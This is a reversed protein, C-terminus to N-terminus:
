EGGYKAIFEPSYLDDYLSEATPEPAAKAHEIADQVEKAMSAYIDDLRTEDAIGSQLLYERMRKVPDMSEAWPKSTTTDRYREDDAVFHGIYRYYRAEILTPGEGKRALTAADRVAAYVAFPNFGDVTVGPIGYGIARDAVNPNKAAKEYPMSIAWQNNECLFIVPLNWVASMNLSEHWVGQNTGGDGHFCITVYDKKLVQATLASGVAIPMGSGVIGTAGLMGHDMAAIHMSGGKGKCYGDAKGMLESMMKKVDGGMAIVHGHGRHTSTIFDGKKLAACAGVAVAEAGLYAHALGYIFNQKWLDKVNTDFERILAMKRYIELQDEVTLEPPAKMEQMVEKKYKELKALSEEMSIASIPM